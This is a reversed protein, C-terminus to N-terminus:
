VCPFHKGHVFVNITFLQYFLKPCTKFTGAMYITVSDCLELMMSDSAFVTIKDNSGDNALLFREKILTKYWDGSLDIDERTRPM